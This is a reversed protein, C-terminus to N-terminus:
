SSGKKEFRNRKEECRRKEERKNVDTMEYVENGQYRSVEFANKSVEKEVFRKIHPRTRNINNISYNTNIYECIEETSLGSNRNVNKFADYVMQHVPPHTPTSKQNEKRSAKQEQETEDETAKRKRSVACNLNEGVETPSELFTLNSNTNSPANQREEASNKAEKYTKEM